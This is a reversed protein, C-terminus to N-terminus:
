IRLTLMNILIQSCQMLIKHVSSVHVSTSACIHIYASAIALLDFTHAPGYPFDPM